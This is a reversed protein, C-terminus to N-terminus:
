KKLMRQVLGFDNREVLQIGRRIAQVREDRSPLAAAQTDDRQQRAIYDAFAEPDYGVAAMMAVAYRDAESEFGRQIEQLRSAGTSILGANLYMAPVFEVHDLAARTALRTAHRGAVHAIAHALMGAFENESRSESILNAPIFIPGGPLAIPENTSGGLQDEVVTFTYVASDDALTATLRRGVRNVYQAVTPNRVITFQNQAQSALKSGLASEKEKSYFNAGQQAKTLSALLLLSLILQKM